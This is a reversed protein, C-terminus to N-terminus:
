ATAHRLKGLAAAASGNGVTGAARVAGSRLDQAVGAVILGASANLLVTDCCPGPEGHLLACLADANTAADSDEGSMVAGFAAKAEDAPLAAGSAPRALVPELSAM